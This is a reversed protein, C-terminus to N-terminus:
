ELGLFKALYIIGQLATPQPLQAKFTAWDKQAQTQQVPVVSADFTTSDVETVVLAPHAASFKAIIDNIATDDGSFVQKEVVVSSGNKAIFFRM